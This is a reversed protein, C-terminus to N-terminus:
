AGGKMDLNIAGVLKGKELINISYKGFKIGEFVVPAGRREPVYSELEKQAKLLTVRFGNSKRANGAQKITIKIDSKKTAVREIEVEAKFADYSKTFAVLQGDSSSVGRVIVKKPEFYLTKDGTNALVKIAKESFAVAIDWLKIGQATVPDISVAKAVLKGPVMVSRDPPVSSALSLDLCESCAMVHRRIDKAEKGELKGEVFAALTEQDPCVNERELLIAKMVERVDKDTKDKM